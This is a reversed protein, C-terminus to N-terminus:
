TCDHDSDGQHPIQHVTIQQVGALITKRTAENSPEQIRCRQLYYHAARTLELGPAYFCSQSVIEETKAQPPISLLLKMTEFAIMYRTMAEGYETCDFREANDTVLNNEQLLKIDRECVLELRQDANGDSNIGDIKYYNPNQQMRVNLFTRQIM